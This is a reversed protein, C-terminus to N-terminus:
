GNVHGRRDLWWSALYGLGTILPLLGLGWLQGVRSGDDFRFPLACFMAILGLGGGILVLARRRESFVARPEFLLEEPLVVGKDALQLLLNYRAETQRFRYRMVTVVIVIPTLAAAFPILLFTPDM